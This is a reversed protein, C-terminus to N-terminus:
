EELRRKAWYNLSQDRYDAINAVGDKQCIAILEKLLRSPLHPGGFVMASYLQVLDAGARIKELASKSDTIGGVAIIPMTKKVRQRMKALISTSREFLPRGSLGGDQQHQADTLNRRTLTTNSIILGDLSSEAVAEAIDDLGEETLDPAIKLFIPVLDKKQSSHEPQSLQTTYAERATCVATLLNKLAERMQLDRLGPTNPSSINVTFYDAVDYFRCIGTAYDAIRDTADKNAGINVGIIGGKQRHRLRQYVVDHGDNNFGMRNIIAQDKTLRFLRPHQNGMQPQPTLTGIESFGFGLRLIKEAVKANKDFGAALGLPNPFNLGAISTALCAHSIQGRGLWGSKLVTLALEHAREPELMFLLPRGVSWLDCM